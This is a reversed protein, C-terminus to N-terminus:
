LFRLKDSASQLFARTGSRTILSYLLIYERIGHVGLVVGVDGSPTGLTTVEISSTLTLLWSVFLGRDCPTNSSIIMFPPM